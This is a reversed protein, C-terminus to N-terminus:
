VTAEEKREEVDYAYAEATNTCRAPDFWDIMMAEADAQTEAEVEIDQTYSIVVTGKWKKM